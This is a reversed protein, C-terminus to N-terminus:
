WPLPDPVCDLTAADGQYGAIALRGGVGTAEVRPVGLAVLPVVGEPYREPYIILWAGSTMDTVDDPLDDGTVLGTLPACRETIWGAAVGAERLRELMAEGQEADMVEERGIEIRLEGDSMVRVGATADPDEVGPEEPPEGSTGGSSGEGPEEAPEEVPAEAPPVTTDRAVPAPDGDSGMAGPLMVAAATVAAVAAAVGGSLGWVRRRRLAGARRAVGAMPPTLPTPATALAERLRDEDSPHQSSM